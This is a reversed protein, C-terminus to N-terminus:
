LFDDEQDATFRDSIANAHCIDIDGTMARALFAFGAICIEGELIAVLSGHETPDIVSEEECGETAEESKKDQDWKELPGERSTFRHHLSRYTDSALTFISKEDRHCFRTIM